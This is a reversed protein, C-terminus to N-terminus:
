QSKGNNNPTKFISSIASKSTENINFKLSILINTVIHNNFNGQLGKAILALFQWQKPM